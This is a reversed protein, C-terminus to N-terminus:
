DSIEWKKFLIDRNVTDFAKALDIFIEITRKSKDLKYNSVDAKDRQKHIPIVDARKLEDSWVSKEISLNILHTALSNNNKSLEKLARANVKDEKGANDRPEKIINSIENTSTPKILISKLNRNIQKIQEDINSLRDSLSKGIKCFYKNM